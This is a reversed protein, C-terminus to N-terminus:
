VPKMIDNLLEDSVTVYRCELDNYGFSVKYGDTERIAGCPFVVFIKNSLRPISESIHEGSIIPRSSISTIKYPFKAEFELAGMHYQYGHYRGNLIPLRSHFFCLFKDGTKIPTSGGRIEGYKWSVPNAKSVEKWKSGNMEFVTMSPLDYICMLKGSDEFFTWNKETRKENPKDIYFSDTAKLTHPDIKAQAMQYGDTYSLYLEDNLIFLRPDEVHYGKDYQKGEAKLDSHLQLLVNSESIPRYNDDLLCIGIKMYMCFPKAEMRYAFYKKGKYEIFSCNFYNTIRFANGNPLNYGKILKEKDILVTNKIPIIGSKVIKMEAAQRTTMRPPLGSHKDAEIYRWRYKHTTGNANSIDILLKDYYETFQPRCFNKGGLFSLLQVDKAMVHFPRQDIKNCLHMVPKELEGTIGAQAMAVNMYLEDPQGNGWTHKLKGIPIPNDINKNAQEFLSKAEKCKRVYQFSSNTIPLVSSHRLNFHSYIDDMYAWDMEPNNREDDYDYLEKIHSYYYGGHEKAKDFIPAIDAIALCDADLIITEDFPLKDYLSLKLKAPNFSGGVYKDEDKMQILIDFIESDGSHLQSITADHYGAIKIEPNFHKITLALNYAAYPYGRKHFFPIFVGKSM